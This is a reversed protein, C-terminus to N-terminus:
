ALSCSWTLCRFGTPIELGAQMLQLPILTRQRISLGDDRFWWTRVSPTAGLRPGREAGYQHGGGVENLEPAQEYVDVEFEAACCRYRRCRPRRHRRRDGRDPAARDIARQRKTAQWHALAEHPKSIAPDMIDGHKGPTRLPSEAPPLHIRVM